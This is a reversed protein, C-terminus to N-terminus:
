GAALAARLEEVTVPPRRDRNLLARTRDDLRGMVEDRVSRSYDMQPRFWPPCFLAKIVARRAQTGNTGSCHWLRSDFLLADGAAGAAPIAIEGLVVPDPQPLVSRHSAPVIWTAGNRQEVDTLYYLCNVGINRSPPLASGVFPMVDTHFDWPFRGDGPFLVLADYSNLIYDPLIQDIVQYIPSDALLEEFVPDVDCLNRLAGRQGMELLRERGWTADDEELLRDVTDRLRAVREPSLAGEIRTFGRTRLEYVHEALM